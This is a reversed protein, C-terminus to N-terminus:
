PQNGTGHVSAVYAILLPCDFVFSKEDLSGGERESAVTRTYFVISYPDRLIFHVVASGSTVISRVTLSV